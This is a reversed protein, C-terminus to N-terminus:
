ALRGPEFRCDDALLRELYVALGDAANQGIRHPTAALAGSRANGMAIGLGANSLMPVDNVDDGIAITAAPNLDLRRCIELLGKWKNVRADFIEIVEINLAPISIQHLYIRDGIEQMLRAAVADCKEITDDTSIRLTFEHDYSEMREVRRSATGFHKLWRTVGPPMDFEASILWDAPEGHGLQYAMAALGVAHIHGVIERALSPEIRSHTILEGSAMSHIAAGGVFVGPGTLGISEAIARSEPWTRGTCIAVNVGADAVARIADRTRPSLTGDPGLVTGDLDLALLECRRVATSLASVNM